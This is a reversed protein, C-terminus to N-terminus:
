VSDGEGKGVRTMSVEAGLALSIAMELAQTQTVRTGLRASLTEVLAGLKDKVDQTTRVSITVQKSSM